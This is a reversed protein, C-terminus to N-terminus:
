IDTYFTFFFLLHHLFTFPWFWLDSHRFQIVSGQRNSLDQCFPLGSDWLHIFYPGPSWLLWNSISGVMLTLIFGRREMWSEQNREDQSKDSVTLTLQFIFTLTILLQWIHKLFTNRGSHPVNDIPFSALLAKWGANDVCLSFISFLQLTLTHYHSCKANWYVMSNQVTMLFDWIVRLFVIQEM